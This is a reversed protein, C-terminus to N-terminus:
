FVSFIVLVVAILAFLTLAFFSLWSTGKKFTKFVLWLILSLTASVAYHAFALLPIFILGLGSYDETYGPKSTRISVDIATAVFWLVYVVAPLVIMMVKVLKRKAPSLVSNM